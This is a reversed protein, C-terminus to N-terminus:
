SEIEFVEDGDKSAFDNQQRELADKGGFKTLVYDRQIKTAKDSLSSLYSSWSYDLPHTVFGHKVPNHHIYLVLREFYRQEDVRIRRFPHEFLSGTRSYKKNFYQAYANFLHSFQNSPKPKKVIIDNQKPPFPAIEHENKIRVLLHFHNGLLVWAYTDAILSIYKNYAKLFRSYDDEGRFLQEGNIGRNYIHYFRDYEIKELVRMEVSKM